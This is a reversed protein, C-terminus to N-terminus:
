ALYKYLLRPKQWFIWVVNGWFGAGSIIWSSDRTSEWGLDRIETYVRLAEAQKKIEGSLTKTAEIAADKLGPLLENIFWLNLAEISGYPANQFAGMSHLYEIVEEKTECADLMNKVAQVSYPIFDNITTTTNGSVKGAKNYIAQQLTGDNELDTAIFIIRAYQAHKTNHQADDSELVSMAQRVVKSSIDPFEKTVGALIREFAGEDTLGKPKLAEEVQKAIKQQVGEKELIKKVIDYGEKLAAVNAVKQFTNKLM